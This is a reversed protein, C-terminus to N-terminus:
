VRRGHGPWGSRRDLTQRAPRPRLRRFWQASRGSRSRGGRAIEALDAGACFMGTTSSGLVAVAISASRDIEDVIWRMARTVDGNIANRSQPRNLLVTAVQGTVEFLVSQGVSAPREDPKM